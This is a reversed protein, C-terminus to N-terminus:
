GVNEFTLQSLGTVFTNEHEIEECCTCLIGPIAYACSEEGGGSKELLSGANDVLHTCLPLSPSIVKLSFISLKCSGVLLLRYM